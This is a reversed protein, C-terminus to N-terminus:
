VDIEFEDSGRGDFRLSITPINSHISWVIVGYGKPGFGHIPEWPSLSCDRPLATRHDRIEQAYQRTRCSLTFSAGTCCVCSGVYRHRHFSCEDRRTNMECVGTGRVDDCRSLISRSIRAQRADTATITPPNLIAVGSSSIFPFSLHCLLPCYVCRTFM